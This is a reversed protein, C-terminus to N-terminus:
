LFPKYDRFRILVDAENILTLSIGTLIMISMPASYLKSPDQRYAGILLPIGVCACQMLASFFCCFRISHKVARETFKGPRVGVICDGSEKFQKAISTGDIFISSFGYTLFVVVLLYLLVGPISNLNMNEDITQLVGSSPFLLLLGKIAFTPILFFTMAFMVPMTGSPNLKIALYGQDALENHIMIRYVDLHLETTEFLLILFVLLAAVFAFGLILPIDPKGEEMVVHGVLLLQSKLGTLINVMILATMGGFGKEKNMESLTIVVFCGTVLTIVTLLRLIWLPLVSEKFTVSGSSVYAQIAGVVIAISLTIRRVLVGSIGQSKGRNWLAMIIQVFIMTSVYPGLGLALVSGSLTHKGMMEEIVYTFDLAKEPDITQQPIIWPIPINRGILYVTVVFLSFRIKTLFLDGKQQM